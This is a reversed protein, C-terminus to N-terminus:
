IYLNLFRYFFKNKLLNEVDLKEKAKIVLEKALKIKDENITSLINLFDKSTDM